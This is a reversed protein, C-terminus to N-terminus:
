ARAGQTKALLEEARKRAREQLATVKRVTWSSQAAAVVKKEDKGWQTQQKQIEGTAVLDFQVDHDRKERWFIYGVYAAVGAFGGLVIWWIYQMIFVVAFSLLLVGISLLVIDKWFPFPDAGSAKANFYGLVCGVLIGLLALGCIYTCWIIINNKLADVPNVDLYYVRYLGGVRHTPTISFGPIISEWLQSPVARGGGTRPEPVSPVLRSSSCSLVLIPLLLAPLLQKM